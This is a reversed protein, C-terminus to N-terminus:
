DTIRDIADWQLEYQKPNYSAGNGTQVCEVKFYGIFYKTTNSTYYMINATNKGNPGVHAGCSRFDGRQHHPCLDQEGDQRRCAGGASADHLLIKEDNDVDQKSELCIPIRNFTM